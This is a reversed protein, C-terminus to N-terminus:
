KGFVYRINLGFGRGSFDTEEVIFLTPRYDLSLSLPITNFMYAIGIEGSVGLLFIDGIFLSPGAGAYWNFAEGGLPEYIPTWIAEVGVGGSGFSLDAHTRGWDAGFIADIAINNGLVDGTRIGIEQAKLSNLGLFVICFFAFLIKKM